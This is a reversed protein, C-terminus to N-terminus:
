SNANFYSVVQVIYFFCAIKNFIQFLYKILGIFISIVHIVLARSKMYTFLYRCRIALYSIKYFSLWSFILISITYAYVDTCYLVTTEADKCYTSIYKHDASAIITGEAAHHIFGCHGFGESRLFNFIYNCFIM